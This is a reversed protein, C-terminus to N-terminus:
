CLLVRILQLEDSNLTQQLRTLLSLDLFLSHLHHNSSYPYLDPFLSHLHGLSAMPSALPGVSLDAGEAM